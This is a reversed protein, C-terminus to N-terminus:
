HRLDECIIACANGVGYPNNTVSMKSYYAKDDLLRSSETVITDTNTGVLERESLIALAKCINM